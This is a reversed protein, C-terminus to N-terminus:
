DSSSAATRGSSSNGLLDEVDKKTMRNMRMVLAFIREVAPASKEGLLDLDGNTNFLRNGKENVVCMAVAMARFNKVNAKKADGEPVAVHEELADRQAVTLCMVRVTGHWEPVFLTEASMDKSKLIQARDLFKMPKDEGTADQADKEAVANPKSM